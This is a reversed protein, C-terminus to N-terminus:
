TKRRREQVTIFWYRSEHDSPIHPSKDDRHLHFTTGYAGGLPMAAILKIKEDGAEEHQTILTTLTNLVPFM